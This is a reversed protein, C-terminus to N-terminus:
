EKHFVHEASLFLGDVKADIYHYITPARNILDALGTGFGDEPLVLTGNELKAHALDFAENIRPRVDWFSRESFFASAENSPRWKTPVGITNPAGRMERAQGGYGMQAMNDGFMFWYNNPAYKEIYDRTIFKKFILTGNKM